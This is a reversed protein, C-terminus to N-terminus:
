ATHCAQGGDVSPYVLDSPCPGGRVGLKEKRCLLIDYDLAMLKPKFRLTGVAGKAAPLPPSFAPLEGQSRRIVCGLFSRGGYTFNGSLQFTRRFSYTYPSRVVGM